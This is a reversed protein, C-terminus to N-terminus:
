SYIVAFSFITPIRLKRSVKSVRFHDNLVKLVNKHRSPISSSFVYRLRPNASVLHIGSKPTLVAIKFGTYINRLHHLNFKPSKRPWTLDRWKMTM